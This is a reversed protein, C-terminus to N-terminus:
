DGGPEAPPRPILVAPGDPGAAVLQEFAHHLHRFSRSRATALDPNLARTYRAQDHVERYGFQRTLWGKADRRDEPEGCYTHGCHISELSALFWAEYERHACVVAVSFPLDGLAAVRRALRPGEEAPCDDDLDVLILLAACDSFRVHARIVNELKGRAFFDGCSRMRWPQLSTSPRLTWCGLWTLLKAILVAVAPQENRHRRPPDAEGHGEVIAYVRNRPM